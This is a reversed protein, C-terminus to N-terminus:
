PGDPVARIFREPDRAFEEECSRSCFVCSRDGFTLARATALDIRKGCVPDRPEGSLGAAAAKKPHPPTGLLSAYPQLDDALLRTLVFRERVLAQGTRGLDKAPDPDGLLEVV